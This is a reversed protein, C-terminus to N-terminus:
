LFYRRFYPRFLIECCSNKEEMSAATWDTLGIKSIFKLDENLYSYVSSLLSANGAMDVIITPTKELQQPLENYSLVEDYFGTGKVFDVNKSSTLGIIKKHDIAKNEHLM